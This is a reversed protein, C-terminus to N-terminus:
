TLLSFCLMLKGQLGLSAHDSSSDPSHPTDVGYQLVPSESGLGFESDYTDSELDSVSDSNDSGTLPPPGSDESDNPRVLRWCSTSYGHSCDPGGTSAHGLFTVFHVGFLLIFSCYGVTFHMLELQM